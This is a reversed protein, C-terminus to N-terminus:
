GTGVCTPPSARPPPAGSTSRAAAPVARARARRHAVRLRARSALAVTTDSPLRTTGASAAATPDPGGQSTNTSTSRRTPTSVSPRLRTGSRSSPGCRWQGVTPSRLRSCRTSRSGHYLYRAQTTLEGPWTFAVIGGGVEGLAVRQTSRVGIRDLRVHNGSAEPELGTVDHLLDPRPRDLLRLDVTGHM